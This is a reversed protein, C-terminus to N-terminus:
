GLIRQKKSIESVYDLKKAWYDDLYNTVMVM